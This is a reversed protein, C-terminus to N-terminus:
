PESSVFKETMSCNTVDTALVQEHHLSQQIFRFCVQFKRSYDEERKDTNIGEVILVRTERDSRQVMGPHLRSSSSSQPLTNLGADWLM